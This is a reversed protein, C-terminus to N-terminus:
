ALYGRPTVMRGDIVTTASNGVIVISTMGVAATDLEALTTLATHEGPRAADTVVGVPTGASRHALLLERAADLQWTRKASRPNYLAVVFDGEAAARLRREIAAWPTLHDSLSVSCHDHGLPAGLVAAAALAATVGPVVDVEVSPALELALSAMAYVGPDGSCVLAVRRGGEAEAVAQKARVLEEGIPSRVVEQGPRLLGAAQDVYPSYGIVVDAGRVATAAAPTRHVSTGPGLGVVALHGSAVSERRAVAVTAVANKRKSVVLAAGPGAALLAAAEAVSSTGVAQEVATSPNPVDVGALEDATFAQVPLGLASLAATRRDITAIADPVRGDLTELLLDFVDELPATSSCGVGAVLGTGVSDTATTVVPEAGVAAAVRHALLNAGGEHGGTLAIAFRGAEDVCVVAPDTSKDDLMPAVIRTAAGTALFLVFADIELWRARVTEAAGGHAREWPLRGALHRGRDTVSVSLTRM